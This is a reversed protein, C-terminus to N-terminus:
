KKSLLLKDYIIKENLYFHCVACKTVYQACLAVTRFICFSLWWFFILFRLMIFPHSVHPFRAAFSVHRWRYLQIGFVCALLLYFTKECHTNHDWLHVCVFMSLPVLMLSSFSILAWSRFYASRLLYIITPYYQYSLLFKQDSLIM